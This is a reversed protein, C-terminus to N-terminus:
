KVRDDARVSARKAHVLKEDRMAVWVRAIFLEARTAVKYAGM